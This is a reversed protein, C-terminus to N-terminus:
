IELRALFEELHEATAFLRNGFESLTGAHSCLETEATEPKTPELHPEHILPALRNHLNEIAAETRDLQNKIFGVNREVSLVKKAAVTPNTENPM